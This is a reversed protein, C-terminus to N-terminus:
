NKRKFTINREEMEKDTEELEPELNNIIELINDYTDYNEVYKMIFVDFNVDEYKQMIEFYKLLKEKKDISEQTDKKFNQIIVNYDINISEPFLQIDLVINTNFVKL